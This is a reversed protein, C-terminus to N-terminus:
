CVICIYFPCCTIIRVAISNYICIIIGISHFYSAASDSYRKLEAYNLHRVDGRDNTWLVAEREPDREALADVIDYAFNFDEPVNVSFNQMFDDYNVFEMQKLYKSIM